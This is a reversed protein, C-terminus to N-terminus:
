IQLFNGWGGMTDVFINLENPQATPGSYAVCIHIDKNIIYIVIIFKLRFTTKRNLLKIVTIICILLIQESLFKLIYDKRFSIPIEPYSTLNFYKKM